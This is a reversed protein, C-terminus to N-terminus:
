LQHLGAYALEMDSEIGTARAVSLDPVSDVLYELLATKGIGAEGKLVLSRSQGRRVSSVLEDLLACEQDRGRLRTEGSPGRGGTM